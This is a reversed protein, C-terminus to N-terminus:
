KQKADSPGPDLIYELSGLPTVSSGEAAGPTVVVEDGQGWFKSRKIVELQPGLCAVQLLLLRPQTPM